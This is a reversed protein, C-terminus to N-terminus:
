LRRVAAPMDELTGPDGLTSVDVDLFARAKEPTEMGRVALVAALLPTFGACLLADPIVPRKQRINWQTYMM